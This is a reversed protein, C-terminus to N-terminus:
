GARAIVAGATRMVVRRAHDESVLRLSIRRDIDEYIEGASADVDETSALARIVARETENQCSAFAEGIATVRNERAILVREALADEALISEALADGEDDLGFSSLPREFRSPNRDQSGSLKAGRARHLERKAATIANFVVYRALSVGRTADWRYVYSWAGITLEQMVDDFAYWAPPVWRRLLYNAMRAFERDTTRVFADFALRREFAAHLQREFNNM